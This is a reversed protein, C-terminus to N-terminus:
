YSDARRDAKGVPFWGTIGRDWFLPCFLSAKCCFGCAM